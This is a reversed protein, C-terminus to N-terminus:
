KNELIIITLGEAPGTLNRKGKRELLDEDREREVSEDVKMEICVYWELVATQKPRKKKMM